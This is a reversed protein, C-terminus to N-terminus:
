WIIAKMGNTQSDLILNNTTDSSTGLVSYFSDMPTSGAGPATVGLNSWTQFFAATSMQSTDFPTWPIKGTSLATGGPKLGDIMAQVFDKQGQIEWVHETVFKYGNVLAKASNLVQQACAAKDAYYVKKGANAILWAVNRYPASRLAAQISSRTKGPPNKCIASGRSSGRKILGRFYKDWLDSRFQSIEEETAEGAM